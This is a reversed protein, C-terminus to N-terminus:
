LIISNSFAKEYESKTCPCKGKCKVKVKECNALCTNGYEKGDTGCVPEDKEPCDCVSLCSHIKKDLALLIIDTATQSHTHIELRKKLSSMRLFSSSWLFSSLRLFFSLRLFSTM